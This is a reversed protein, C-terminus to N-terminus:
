ELVKLKDLLERKQVDRTEDRLKEQEDLIAKLDRLAEHFEAMDRVNELVARLSDVVDAVQRASDTVLAASPQNEQVAVRFAGVARDATALEPGAAKLPDVIQQQMTGALSQPPIANNQLQLVIEEFGEVIALLDNAQRRLNNGSRTACTNLSALDNSDAGSGAADARGAVERHFTLDDRIAELHAIIEEFRARLGIERTYLLSLLEENSVIRFPLPDGRTVGPEPNGDTAIISLTLTQGDSLELPQVEFVEFPEDGSRSLEFDLRGTEPPRRLPRPRWGTEDDVRFEFGASMLGYDDKLRGAIPIRARRTIANGIGTMRAVVVPPQDAIGQVRLTEPSVSQINDTDHLFFRL